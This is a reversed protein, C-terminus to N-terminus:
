YTANIRELKLSSIVTRMADITHSITRSLRESLDYIYGTEHCQSDIYDKALSPAFYQQHAISTATLNLYAQRKEKRFIKAYEAMLYNARAQMTTLDILYANCASVDEMLTPEVSEIIKFYGTLEEAINNITEMESTM